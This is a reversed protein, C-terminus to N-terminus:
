LPSDKAMLRQRTVEYLLIGAAVAVNFSEAQGPLPIKTLQDAAAKLEQSPGCGENGLGIALSGRYDQRFCYQSAQVDGVVLKVKKEKLQQLFQTLNEIKLIPLHFISGMTSRITKPNYLDVTGKTLLVGQVGTADATRIITGLNGPDQVGDVIVLLMKKGEPWWTQWGMEKERAVALIGQSNETEGIKEMIEETICILPIRNKQLTQFIEKGRSNDLFKPTYAALQLPWSVAIAEEVLRIGELLFTKEKTREKRQQLAKIKKVWKNQLSTIMEM